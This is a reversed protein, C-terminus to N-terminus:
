LHFKILGTYFGPSNKARYFFKGTNQAAGWVHGLDIQSCMVSVLVNYILIAPGLMQTNPILSPNSQAKPIFVVM